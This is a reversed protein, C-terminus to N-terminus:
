KEKRIKESESIIKGLKAYTRKAMLGRRFLYDGASEETWEEKESDALAMALLKDYNARLSREAIIGANKGNFNLVSLEYKKSFHYCYSELVYHNWTVGCYPFMSFATVDRIAGYSKTYIKSLVRDTEEIDFQVKKLSVFKNESVRIFGNYLITFTDQRKSGGNWDTVRADVEDFTIEDRERYEKSLISVINMTTNGTTLIKGNNQYTGKLIMNFLATYLTGEPVSGNNDKIDGLPIDTLSAFGNEKCEKAVFDRISKKEDESVLLRDTLLYKGEAAWCFLDVAFLVRQVNEDPIFPLKKCLSSIDEVAEDGWVRILEESVAEFETKKADKTFFVRTYNYETLKQKMMSKLVDDSSIHHLEMWEQENYFLSEYYVISHGASFIDEIKVRLEDDANGAKPFLKDDMLTGISLLLEKLKEDEEPLSLGADEAANRFRTLDRISGIRLGYPFSEKLLNEIGSTAKDRKSDAEDNKGSPQNDIAEVFNDGVQRHAERLINQFAQYDNQYLLAMADFMATRHMSSRNPFFAAAVNTLQLNMGNLNRFIEDIQMGQNVARKRLSESLKLLVDQKEGQKNEIKWFAEILLATEFKDWGVRKVAQKDEVSSGSVDARRDSDNNVEEQTQSNMITPKEVNEKTCTKSSSAKSDYTEKSIYKIAPHGTQFVKETDQNDFKLTLRTGVESVVVGCGYTIHFVYKKESPVAATQVPKIEDKTKIGSQSTDVVSSKIVPKNHAAKASPRNEYSSQDIYRFSSHRSQFVREKDQDDFKVTIFNDKESLVIGYGFKSHLIYRKEEIVVDEPHTAFYGDIADIYKRANDYSVSDLNLGIKEAILKPFRVAGTKDAYYRLKENGKKVGIITSRVDLTFDSSKSKSYVFFGYFSEAQDGDGLFEVIAKYEEPFLNAFKNEQCQVNEKGVIQESSSPMSDHEMVSTEVVENKIANVSQPQISEEKVETHSASPSAVKKSKKTLWSFLSM